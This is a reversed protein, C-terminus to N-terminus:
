KPLTWPYGARGRSHAMVSRFFKLQAFHVACEGRKSPLFDGRRKRFAVWCLFYGHRCGVGAEAREFLTHLAQFILLRDALKVVGVAIVDVFTEVVFDHLQKGLLAFNAEHAAYELALGSCS